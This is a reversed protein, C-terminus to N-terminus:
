LAGEDGAALAQRLQQLLGMLRGRDDSDVIGNRIHALAEQLYVAAPGSLDREERAKELAAKIKEVQVTVPHSDSREAKAFRRDHAASIGLMLAGREAANLRDDFMLHTHAKAVLEAEMSAPATVKIAAIKAATSAYSKAMTGLDRLAKAFIPAPTKARDRLRQAWRNSFNEIAGPPLAKFMRELDAIVAQGDASFGTAALEEQQLMALSGHFGSIDRM